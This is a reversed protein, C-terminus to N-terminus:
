RMWRGWRPGGGGVLGGTGLQAETLEDVTLVEVSVVAALAAARLVM